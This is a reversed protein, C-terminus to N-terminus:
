FHSSVYYSENQHAFRYPLPDDVKLVNSAHLPIRSTGSLLAKKAFRDVFKANIDMQFTQSSLNIIALLTYWAAKSSIKNYFTISMSIHLCSHM